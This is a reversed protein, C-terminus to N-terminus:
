GGTNREDPDGGRGPKGTPADSEISEEAEDVDSTSEREDDRESKGHQEQESDM